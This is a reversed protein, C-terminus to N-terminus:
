IDGKQRRLCYLIHIVNGSAIDEPRAYADGREPLGPVLLVGSDDCIMPLADRRSEPIGADCIMKKLRRTHGGLSLTDGARRRRVYVRGYITDFRLTRHISLKYINEEIKPLERADRCLYLVFGAAGCEVTVCENGAPLEISINFDPVTRERYATVLNKSVEFTVGDPLSVKGTGCRTVADRCRHVQDASMSVPTVAAVTMAIARSMVPPPLASMAERPVDALDTIGRSLYEGVANRALSDLYEGDERLLAGARLAADAAAPNVEKLLPLVSSRIFNRTYDEDSNTSDIVFPIGLARCAKRIEASGMGLIPRIVNGSRVPPIGALGASGSGRALNFLVTELNDDANHATAILVGDGMSQAIEAFTKYRENRACEEVGLGTERSVTPVDIRKVTLPVGLASCREACFREDSDAEDGRIMHNVHVAAIKPFHAETKAMHVLYELLLSSDAGGSFGVLIYKACAYLPSIGLVEGDDKIKRFIKDM